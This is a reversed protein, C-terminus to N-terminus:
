ARGLLRAQDERLKVLCGLAPLADWQLRSWPLKAAVQGPGGAFAELAATVQAAPHLDRLVQVWGILESTTPKKTLSPVLRMAQVADITRDIYPLGDGFRAKLIDRLANDDPAEIHFFVCRRLFPDPLQREVNSTIIVFPKPPAKGDERRAPREMQHRYTSPKDVDVDPEPGDVQPIEPIEFKGQDLERLLDNPLDRPAKDIEDILLVRLHTSMLARGLDRLQIYPRPDQSQEKGVDGGHQADGFRRVADYHYLLDRARTDSRVYCQLLSGTDDNAEPDNKLGSAAAYAFDTKGCGAEGTLLLPQGLVLAANAAALLNPQPYYDYGDRGVLGKGSLRPQSPLYDLSAM